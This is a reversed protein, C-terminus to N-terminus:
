FILRLSFQIQRSTGATKNIIGFGSGRIVNLPLGFNVLNFLNFFEARFQLVMAETNGRHGFSTDKTLSFDLDHFGPARFTNRGLTGFVGQNPGTGGPVGIPIQFFDGNASGRGFYDERVTRSTSFVPRGIQDPRDAGGSGMGTQQIGSYVSFPPGSTLTTINLIQWGSTVKKSIPRLFGVRDFPLAQILSLAFVHTADFTSPGKELGPNRPDQPVTQLVPGSSGFFGGLVASTDDLSKSYTYSAQFGLGARLSTKEVGTQLAHYTSHSRTAVLFSPGYGGIVNGSSDTQLFPAFSPDAGAYGNFAQMASLRIGATGVYSASLKVDGFSHEFGATYTGIYGNRFDPSIGGAGLLQLQHGPTLATLDSQFRMMDLQTNPLVATTPGQAYIQQGGVTYIPPLQFSSVSNAFPVTVNPQATVLPGVVYPLGGTLANNQWINTLITSIAAGAHWITHDTVQWDLGLRPGWGRWDKGYPPQPNVLYQVTAGTEWPLAPAGEPTVIRADSTLHHAEGIRSNVEYRLGYNISLRPTVKWADQFYFNYAARRAAAEGVRNGQPFYKPAVSISYSFPTGTLFASLTDPLPDGAHINHQGSVSPIDTQAYATGGGFTYVGNPNFDFVTTDRNFRTEFGWKMSHSGHVLSFSQRAQLLSTYAGIYTGAASNFPEYLGDGFALAPQTSNITPFFPTSREVGVTTESIFQPSVTRTYRFGGNRQHDFFRTAFTPDIATQDPNTLPGNVQNLAFRAYFQAQDSIRHDIRFSFQNTVTSVKASTAYTRDGFAGQPDNPVPYRALVSSIQANLPVLLTDGPFATTDLGQREPMSPVSLVQTTGLVQRFGQFQGFFYTRKRGNYLGPIVFPGGVTFGFENRIFPPIRGPSVLSRRDFFNRSDFAANRLFELVSGHVEDTGSRTIIETFGAAGHGIEAPMVGSNSRVEQIADVNFNSFTSGGLEPDTTDIGDMAFVTTSGRQGNVAFQQTFNAAGNTDTMTGAALLLLQSFDRKNLPLTSVAKSSLREGGSSKSEPAAEPETPNQDQPTASKEQSAPTTAPKSETSAGEQGFSSGQWPGLLALTALFVVLTTLIGPKSKTRNRKMPRRLITDVNAIWGVRNRVRALMGVQPVVASATAM